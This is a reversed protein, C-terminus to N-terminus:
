GGSTLTGCVPDQPVPVFTSGEIQLFETCSTPLLMGATGFHQFTVPSSFLGEGDWSAVNRLDSIFTQKSAHPGSIQLGDILLDADAYQFIINLNPIGGPFATYQKLRALMLTAAPNNGGVYVTASTYQGQMAALATPQNLLNQDYATAFVGKTTVGADKLDEALAVNGALLNPQIVGNCGASKIQLATATFDQQAFPLTTSLCTSIGVKKAATLTTNTSAIASEIEPTVAALKTVGIDKLFNAEATYTYLVGNIPGDIPASVTFMNSNPQEAWEPGDIAAGIVPEGVQHLYRYTAYGYQGMIIAFAGDGVLEQAATLAVTTSSEDDVRILKLQCGDVGGAANQADIRAEAGWQAGAFSSASDGTESTM